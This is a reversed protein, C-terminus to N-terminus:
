DLLLTLRCRGVKLVGYLFAGAVAIASGILTQTSIKNGFALISFGIVFIRKGVNGVAHTM